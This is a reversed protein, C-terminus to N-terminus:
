ETLWGDTVCNEFSAFNLQLLSPFFFEYNGMHLMQWVEQSRKWLYSHYIVWRQGMQSGESGRLM